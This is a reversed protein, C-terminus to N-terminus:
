ADVAFHQARGQLTRRDQGVLLVAAHADLDRRALQLDVRVVRLLFFRLFFDFGVGLDVAQRDAEVDVVQEIGEGGQAVLVDDEGSRSALEEASTRSALLSFHRWTTIGSRRHDCDREVHFM